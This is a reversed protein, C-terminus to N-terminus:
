ISSSLAIRVPLGPFFLFRLNIQFPRHGLPLHSSFLLYPFASRTISNWFGDLKWQSRRLSWVQHSVRFRRKPSLFHFGHFISNSTGRSDPVQGQM